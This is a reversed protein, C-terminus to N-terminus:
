AITKTVADIPDSATILSPHNDYRTDRGDGEECSATGHRVYAISYYLPVVHTALM